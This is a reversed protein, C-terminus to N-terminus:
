GVQVNGVNEGIEAVLASAEHGVIQPPGIRKDMVGHFIHVDTGCVGCFAVDLRVENPGPPIAQGKGIEFTGKKLYFAAKM